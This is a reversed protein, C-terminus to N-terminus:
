ILSILTALSSKQLSNEKVSIKILRMKEQNLDKSSFADTKALNLSKIEVIFRKNKDFNEEIKRDKKLSELCFVALNLAKARKVAMNKTKISIVHLSSFATVFLIFIAISSLLEILLFADKSCM